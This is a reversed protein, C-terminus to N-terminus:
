IQFTENYNEWAPRDFDITAKVIYILYALFDPVGEPQSAVVVVTYCTFCKIWM